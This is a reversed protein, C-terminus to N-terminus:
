SERLMLISTIIMWLIFGFFFSLFAFIGGTSTSVTDIVSLAGLVAAVATFWGYWAPRVKNIFTAASIAGLAVAAWVGVTASAIQSGDNVLRVTEADVGEGGRLALAGFLGEMIGAQASMMISAMLFLPAWYSDKGRDGIALTRYVGIFFMAIPIALLAPVAVGIKLATSDGAFFEVVEDTSAGLGPIEGVIVGQVIGAVVASLGAIGALRPFSVGGGEQVVAEPAVSATSM